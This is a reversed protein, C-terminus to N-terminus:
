GGWFGRAVPVVKGGVSVHIRGEREGARLALVSPRGIEYGQGTLIDVEGRSLYRHKQLYAALCGNGSGTAPDEAIGYCLPFVRVGLRQDEAYGEPCFVLLVKAWSEKILNEYKSNNIVVRKLAAMNKLPVIIHHLGTSVEEVPWRSDLDHPDLGLVPAILDPEFVAGFQPEPQDMWLMTQGSDPGGSFKVPVQGVKLNLVVSDAPKQIIRERIIYATGLTPHGAFDIEAGPTFIRVDYGGKSPEDSLIYTTESFNIERAISQMEQTSLSAARRFTALQNGAYRDEAFVDTIDFELKATM